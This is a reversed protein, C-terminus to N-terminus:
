DATALAQSVSLLQARPTRVYLQYAVSEWRGMTKILSDQIGRAAATTAAGIRFSHGSYKSCDIGVKQLVERLKSVLKQRTLPSGNQFRFLPGGGPGRLAMYALVAAVPCLDGRTRGIWVKVGARFPDTKSQKINVEMRMPDALNDVAIDKYTLHQSPDFNEEPAVAEGVRLFGSFCLCMVAWLMIHDWEKSQDWEAKIRRLIEPTIPLRPKPPTGAQARKMGRIVLELRPMSSMRPDDM